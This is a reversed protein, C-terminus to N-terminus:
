VMGDDKNRIFFNLQFFYIANRIETPLKNWHKTVMCTYSTTM